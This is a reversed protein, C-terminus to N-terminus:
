KVVGKIESVQASYTRPYSELKKLGLLIKEDRTLNEDAEIKVIKSPKIFPNVNWLGFWFSVTYKKMIKVEQNSYFSLKM